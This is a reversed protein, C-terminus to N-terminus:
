ADRLVAHRHRPVAGAHAPDIEAIMHLLVASETGFSSVAAIGGPFREALITELVEQPTANAVRADLEAARQALEEDAPTALDFM